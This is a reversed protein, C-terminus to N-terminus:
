RDLGSQCGRGNGQDERGLEIWCNSCHCSNDAFNGFGQLAGDKSLCWATAIQAMSVGRKKALAEVRNIIETETERWKGSYLMSIFGDTEKRLSSSNVPKALM